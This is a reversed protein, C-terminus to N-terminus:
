DAECFHRQLCANKQKMTYHAPLRAVATKRNERQAGKRVQAMTLKAFIGKCALM